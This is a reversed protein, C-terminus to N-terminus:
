INEILCYNKYNISSDLLRLDDILLLDIEEMEKSFCHYPIIKISNALKKCIQDEYSSGKISYVGLTYDLVQAPGKRFSSISYFLFNYLSDTVLVEENQSFFSGFDKMFNSVEEEFKESNNLKPNFFEGYLYFYPYLLNNYQLTGEIKLVAMQFQEPEISSDEHVLLSLILNQFSYNAKLQTAYFNREADLNEFHVGIPNFLFFILFLICGEYDFVKENFTSFLNSFKKIVPSTVDIFQKEQFSNLDQTYFKKLFLRDSITLFWLCLDNTIRRDFRINYIELFQIIKKQLTTKDIRSYSVEYPHEEIQLLLNYVILISEERGKIEIYPTRNIFVDLSEFQKDLFKLVTFLKSESVFLKSAVQEFSLKPSFFCIHLIDKVISKSLYYSQTDYLFCSKGDILVEKRSLEISGKPLELCLEFLYKELTTQSIKLKCMLASKSFTGGNELILRVIKVKTLAAREYILRM